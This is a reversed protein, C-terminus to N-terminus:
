AEEEEQIPDKGYGRLTPNVTVFVTILFIGVACATVAAHASLLETLAGGVLPGVAGATGVVVAMVGSMRGRLEDPTLLLQYTGITTNATPALFTMLAFMGGLLYPSDLVLALPTLLCLAWFVSAISRFPGLSRHLRPAALAGLVGGVGLMAAMVGIEGAPVGRSDALVIIVLYYASFFLNLCIACVATIRVHPQRWVWRLGAVIERGLHPTAARHEIPKPPLRVFLLATFAVVHAIVDFVFPVMRGLAFLFGGLATGSLQGASSRAANMAVASPVQDVTVLRPLSAEEAPEFLARCLGMVAAVAIMMAVNAVGWWLAAVLAAAALGQVAECALMIKKRNWRDVLAGAPLGAALQAIAVAGLVLGSQAASGTVALVLLPFAIMSTSFGAESIVQGGWLLRYDRNRSLLTTM